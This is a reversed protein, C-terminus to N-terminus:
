LWLQIVSIVLAEGISGLLFVIFVRGAKSGGDGRKETVIRLVYKGFACVSLVVAVCVM